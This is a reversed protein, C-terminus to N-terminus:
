KLKMVIVSYKPVNIYIKGDGQTWPEYYANGAGDWGGYAADQSCFIQTWQGTQGGTSVGYSHNGFSVGSFNVVVLVVNYGSYRKFALVKNNNDQHVFNCTASRLAPNLWRTQIAAKYMAKTQSGYTDHEYSWNVAHDWDNHFYSDQLFEEGEFLMPIGPSMLLLAGFARAKARADWNARGGFQSINYQSGNAAEDHSISYITRWTVAGWSGGNIGVKADELNCYGGQEWCAQLKHHFDVYWCSHFNAGSMMANEYPLNEAILIRNPYVSRVNWNIDRMFAWGNPKDKIYATADWRLGDVHFEAFWYFANDQFYQKVEARGFDPALGWPTDMGNFYIGGDGYESDGDYNYLFNDSSGVHNYVVDIIVGIGNRHCENIFDKLQDPTGYASEPAFYAICNYGWSQDGPFENIPMLEVMNIGLDKLYPIKTKLSVFNGPYTQGDNKGVFSRVHLEYIIMNEFSPTTWGGENWTYSSPNKIISAGVSNEMARGYPDPKWLSGNIYFKYKQEARARPAFGFWWGGTNWLYHNTTNWGNFDGVLAVSTAHPAWVKFFCGNDTSTGLNAGPGRYNHNPKNVIISNTAKNGAADSAIVKITYNSNPPLANFNYTASYPSTTDNYVLTNNLYFAVSTVGVNDSANATVTIIGGIKNNNTPYTIAVTPKTTDATSQDLYVDDIYQMGRYGRPDDFSKIEL